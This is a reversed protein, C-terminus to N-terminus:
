YVRFHKSQAMKVIESAPAHYGIQRLKTVVDRYTDEQVLFAARAAEAAATAEPVTEAHGEVLTTPNDQERVVWDVSNWIKLEILLPPYRM